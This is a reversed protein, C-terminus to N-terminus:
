MKDQLKKAKKTIAYISIPFSVIISVMLFMPKTGLYNDLFYGVIGFISIIVINTSFVTLLRSWTNAFLLNVKVTDKKAELEKEKANDPM